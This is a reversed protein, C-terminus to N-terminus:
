ETVATRIRVAFRFVVGRRKGHSIWFNQYGACGSSGTAGYDRLEQGFTTGYSGGDAHPVPAAIQELTATGLDHIRVNEIGTLQHVSHAAHLSSVVARGIMGEHDLTRRCKRGSRTLRAEFLDDPKRLPESPGVVRRKHRALKPKDIPHEGRKRADRVGDDIGTEERVAGIHLHHRERRMEPDKRQWDRSLATVGRGRDVIDGANRDGRQEIWRAMRALAVPRGPRFEEGNGFHGRDDAVDDAVFHPMHPRREPHEVLCGLRLAILRNQEAAQPMVELVMVAARERNARGVIRYAFEGSFVGLVEFRDCPAVRCQWFRALAEARPESGERAEHRHRDERPDIGRGVVPRLLLGHRRRRMEREVVGVPRRAV